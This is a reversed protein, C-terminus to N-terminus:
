PSVGVVEREREQTDVHIMPLVRNLWTPLWWNADGLLEMAAPVLVMRVITADIFVAVALGLGFLKIGRDQGLVFSLFVCVMIAAAATIVRATIALGDAVALGNNRTRDYEERIRSLLFVEYDMSLGFVIAYLMIPVWAEIPGPKSIGIIEKGWGWQFVAVVVGYAAGISLLNMIVAKVPVVVSRFVAMLLLFSLVLVGAMVLPLHNLTFVSFDLAGPTNGGIKVVMSSGDVAQPVVEDRLKHVLDWTKTDQPSTEPFVQMVAADGAQNPIPPSVSAVGPTQSIQQNLRQIVSQDLKGTPADIVVLLPGNFGPGFGESLLDYARRTTDSTRRNGADAFGFRISLLPSALALLIVLGGVLAPWPYKQILRSWRYFPSREPAAEVHPRRNRPLIKELGLQVLAPIGFILAFPVFLVAILKQLGSFGRWITLASSHIKEGVFGLIAPLLTLSALMTMLVGFSAAVGLARFLSLNMAFMGYLSIVVTTGAFLVARGSTDVSRAIAGEPTLGETLGQRYRTVIFLAYDIGVGIGIMATLQSTFSPMNLVNAALQGIAIGCGVGFLATVIPLGMALLSGFAILLIIIAGIVGVLESPSQEQSAFIDGGLEVQLGDLKVQDRYTEIDKAVPIYDEFPRDSFNIEAYAVKGGPAVQRANQPDYPSVIGVGSVNDTVRKFLSEMAQRVSADNVGQQAQFVIQGQFGTRDGFGKSKLLDFAAQTESGPLKFDTKSKGGAVAGLALLGVLLLVWGAVVLRRRRYCIQAIQKFM